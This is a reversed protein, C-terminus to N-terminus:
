LFGTCPPRVSQPPRRVCTRMAFNDHSTPPRPRKRPTFAALIIVEVIARHCAPPNICSTQKKGTVEPAEGIPRVRLRCNGFVRGQVLVWPVLPPMLKLQNRISSPKMVISKLPWRIAGGFPTGDRDAAPMSAREAPSPSKKHDGLRPFGGKNKGRM